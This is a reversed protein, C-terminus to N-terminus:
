EAKEHRPRVKRPVSDKSGYPRGMKRPKPVDAELGIFHYERPQPIEQQPVTPASAGSEQYERMHEQFRLTAKLRRIEQEYYVISSHHQAVEAETLRVFAERGALDKQDTRFAAINDRLEVPLRPVEDSKLPEPSQPLTPATTSAKSNDSDNDSSSEYDQEIDAKMPAHLLPKWPVISMTSSM